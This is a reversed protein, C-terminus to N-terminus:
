IWQYMKRVSHAFVGIGLPILAAGWASLVPAAFFSLEMGAIIILLGLSLLPGRSNSKIIGSGILSILSVVELAICSFVLATDTGSRFLLNDDAETPDLPMMVTIALSALAGIAMFPGSRRMPMDTSFISICLLATIGWFRGFWALRTSAPAFCAIFTVELPPLLVLRAAQLPLTLLFVRLFHMEPSSGRGFRRRLFIEGFVATLVYATIVAPAWINDFTSGPSRSWAFWAAGSGLLAPLTPILLINILTRRSPFIMNQQSHCM